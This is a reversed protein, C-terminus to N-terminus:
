AVKKALSKESDMKKILALLEAFHEVDLQQQADTLAKEPNERVEVLFGDFPYDLARKFISMCKEVSGGIHSPDLLMPIRMKEKIEMAMEYNPLNRLGEHNETRGPAFGRHCAILRAKPFGAKLIHDGIGQWHKIDEWMQNKYLLYFQPGADGLIKAISRLEFHNQNRAGIWLIIPANEGFNRMIDVITQAQAGTFVETAPIIGLPLTEELLAYLGWLGVGDWGPQTRPKWLSARVMRIGMNHLHPVVHKLTQRNEMACPGAIIMRHHYLYSKLAEPIILEM